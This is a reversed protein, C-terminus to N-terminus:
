EDEPLSLRREFEEPTLWRAPTQDDLRRAMKESFEPDDHRIRLMVVLAQLKRLRADDWTVIEREIAEFSVATL